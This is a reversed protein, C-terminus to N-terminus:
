PHSPSPTQIPEYGILRQREYLAQLYPHPVNTFRNDNDYTPGPGLSGRNSQSVCTTIGQQLNSFTCERVMPANVQSIESGVNGIMVGCNSIERPTTGPTTLRDASFSCNFITNRLSWINCFRVVPLSSTLFTCKSISLGDYFFSNIGSSLFTCNKISGSFQHDSFQSTKCSPHGYQNLGSNLSISSNLSCNKINANADDIRIGPDAPHLSGPRDNGYNQLYGKVELNSISCQYSDVQIKPSNAWSPSNVIGGSSHPSTTDIQIELSNASIIRKVLFYFWIGNSEFYYRQGPSVGKEVVDQETTISFADDNSPILLGNKGPTILFGVCEPFHYVMEVGAHQFRNHGDLILNWSCDFVCGDTAMRNPSISCDGNVCGDFVCDTYITQLVPNGQFTAQYGGNPSTSNSGFPYLFRCNKYRLSKIIKDDMCGTLDPKIKRQYFGGGVSVARHCNIFDCKNFLIEKTIILDSAPSIWVGEGGFFHTDEALCRENRIFIIGSFYISEGHLIVSLMQHNNKEDAIIKAGNGLLWIKRYARAGPEAGLQLIHGCTGKIMIRDDADGKMPTAIRYIGKGFDYAVLDGRVRHTLMARLAQTDDHIGDGKAGFHRPTLVIAHKLDPDLLEQDLNTEQLHNSAHLGAGALIIVGFTMGIFYSTVFRFNKM